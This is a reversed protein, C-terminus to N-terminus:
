KTIREKCYSCLLFFEDERSIITIDEPGVSNLGRCLDCEDREGVRNLWKDKHKKCARNEGLRFDTELHRDSRETIRSGTPRTYEYKCNRYFCPLERKSNYKRKPKIKMKAHLKKSLRM